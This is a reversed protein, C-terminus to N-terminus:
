RAARGNAAFEVTPRHWDEPALGAAAARAMSLVARPPVTSSRHYDRLSIPQVHAGVGSLAVRAWGLRSAAPEGAVHLHGMVGLGLAARISRALWPTWTPNGWEDDVVRLPEGGEKARAAAALIKTVFNSHGPGFLWATRVILHRPNAAEVAREGALKSAGYANIPNPEDDEVYARDLVGDFVENTSIQVVLAGVKAAAHAVGGAAEGNIRNARQPDGACGDVDTWAACNIVVDPRWAALRQLDADSTIDFEPRAFPLVNDDSESFTRVLDSGLQGKAGTIAVRHPM